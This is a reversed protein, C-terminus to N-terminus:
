EWRAGSMRSRHWAQCAASADTPLLGMRKLRRVRSAMIMMTMMLVAQRRRKEMGAARAIDM